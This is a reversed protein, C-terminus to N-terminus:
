IKELCFGAGEPVPKQKGVNKGTGNIIIGFEPLFIL